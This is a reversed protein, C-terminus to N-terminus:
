RKPHGDQAAREYASLAPPAGRAVVNGAGSLLDVDSVDDGPDGVTAPFAAFWIGRGAFGSAVPVVSGRALRVRVQAAAAPARGYTIRFYNGDLTLSGVGYSTAAIVGCAGVSGSSSSTSGAIEVCTGRSGQYTTGTWTVGNSKLTASRTAHSGAASGWL